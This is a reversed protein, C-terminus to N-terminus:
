KRNAHDGERDLISLASLLTDAFARAGEATMRSTNSLGPQPAEVSTLPPLWHVNGLRLPDGSRDCPLLAEQTRLWSQIAAARAPKTDVFVPFQRPVIITALRDAEPMPAGSWVSILKSTVDWVGAFRGHSLITRIKERIRALASRRSSPIALKSAANSLQVYEEDNVLRDFISVLDSASSTNPVRLGAVRLPEYTRLVGELQAIVARGGSGRLDVRINQLAWLSEAPDLAVLAKQNFGIAMRVLSGHINLLADQKHPSMQQPFELGNGHKSYEVGLEECVPALVRQAAEIEASDDVLRVRRRLLPPMKDLLMAEPASGPMAIETVGLAVFEEIMFAFPSFDSAIVIKQEDRLVGVRQVPLPEYLIPTGMRDSELSKGHTRRVSRGILQARGGRAM